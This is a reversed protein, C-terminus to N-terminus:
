INKFIGKVAILIRSLKMGGATSGACAGTVMLLVLITQSLSPWLSYDTTAFGTTSIITTVQFFANRIGDGVGLNQISTVTNVSIIATACACIILYFRLEENKLVTSFKKLLLLFYINFNIGFILM